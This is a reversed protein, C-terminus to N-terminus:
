YRINEFGLSVPLGQSIKSLARETETGFKRRFRREDEYFQHQKRSGGVIGALSNIFGFGIGALSVPCASGAERGRRRSTVSRADYFHSM